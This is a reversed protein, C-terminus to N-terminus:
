SATGKTLTQGAVGKAALRNRIARISAGRRHWARSRADAYRTDDLVGSGEFEAILAEVAAAGERRDTDHARASREVKALLIRRLANGLTMGFGRELPEAILTGRRAPDFGHEVLPKKPRILELWNKEISQM